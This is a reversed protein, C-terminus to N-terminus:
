GNPDAETDPHDRQWALNLLVLAKHSRSKVTGLPIDLVDAAERYKLGQFYILLIVDFLSTPLERVAQRTWERYEERQSEAPPSPTQSELLDILMAPNDEGDVHQEDLSVTQHRGERRLHDIAVHTGISYLWPKFGRGSQFLRRRQYLRLFTAQFAEEALGADNTYRLLFNFMLHEYRHVLTAFAEQDAGDRVRLMLQEDSPSDLVARDNDASVSGMLRVADSRNKAYEQRRYTGVLEGTAVVHGKIATLLQRKTVGPKLDLVIDLAYLKFHYHHTGHGPPPMPGRYGITQGSTWSNRGQRCVLPSELEADPALGAPLESQDKAIGYIVWHVWPEASPADPDDCILAFERTGDPANSWSLPPSRDAGEGTCPRPIPQGAEFEQSHVQMTMLKDGEDVAAREGQCGVLLGLGMLSLVRMRWIWEGLNM